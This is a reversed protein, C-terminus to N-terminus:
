AIINDLYKIVKNRKLIIELSGRARNTCISIIKGHKKFHKVVNTFGSFIKVKNASEKHLDENEKVLREASVKIGFKKVVEDFQMLMSTGRNAYHLKRLYNEDVSQKYPLVTEVFLQQNLEYASSVTDDFDFIIHQKM